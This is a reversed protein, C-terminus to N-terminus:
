NRRDGRRVVNTEEEEQNSPFLQERIKLREKFGEPSERSLFDGVINGAPNTFASILGTGKRLNELGALGINGLGKLIGMGTTDGPQTKLQGIPPLFKDKLPGKGQLGLDYQKMIESFTKPRGLAQLLADTDGINLGKTKPAM